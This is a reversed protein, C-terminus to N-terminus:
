KTRVLKVNDIQLTSISLTNYFELRILHSDKPAVIDLTYTKWEDSVIKISHSELARSSSASVFNLVANSDDGNSKAKFSLQYEYGEYVSDINTYLYGGEKIVAGYSDQYGGNNLPYCVESTEKDESNLRSYYWGYGDQGRNALYEFDGNAILDIDPYYTPSSPYQSELAANVSISADQEEYTQSADFPLYKVWDVEMYDTEFLSEGVFGANNPFWVGLWLRSSLTPIFVDSVATVIGDLHYVIIEPDTYWDFGFTHFQGDNLYIEEGQISSFNVDKSTSYSETIYNTNLVNKFSIVGDSKGGPLEIDIEHNLNEGGLPDTTNNYTLFASCAGLRGLPKMKIQYRGPGTLFKSILAAGTNRGDKLTGVGKIEDKSYYLGNGRLLLVGDNTYFVNEPIVGGNGNGWAGNGIIWNDYDVGDTFDDFFLKSNDFNVDGLLRLADGVEIDTDVIQSTSSNENNCGILLCSCSMVFLINILNFRKM